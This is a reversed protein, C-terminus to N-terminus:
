GIIAQQLVYTLLGAFFGALAPFENGTNLLAVEGTV